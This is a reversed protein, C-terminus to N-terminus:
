GNWSVTFIVPDPLTPATSNGRGPFQGGHGPGVASMEVAAPAAQAAQSAHTVQIGAIIGISALALSLIVILTILKQHLKM